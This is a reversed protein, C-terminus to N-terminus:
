AIFVNWCAIVQKAPCFMPARLGRRMTEAIFTQMNQATEKPRTSPMSEQTNPVCSSESKEASGATMAAPMSRWTMTQAGYKRHPMISTIVPASRPM